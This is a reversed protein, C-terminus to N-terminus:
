TVLVTRLGVARAGAHEDSGGDGVFIADEPSVDLLELAHRYIRPNPKRFGVEYSFITVDMRSAIPCHTWSEVDDAGADSVLATRIGASRLQELAALISQDVATLGIEFRRRRSEV